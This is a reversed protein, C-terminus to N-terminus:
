QFEYSYFLMCGRKQALTEVESSWIMHTIFLPVINPFIGQLREICTCFFMDLDKPSLKLECGGIITVPKGDKLAKGYVHVLQSEGYTDTIYDRILRGQVIIGYREQLLQPLYKYAQNDLIYRLTLTLDEPEDELELDDDDYEAYTDTDAIIM